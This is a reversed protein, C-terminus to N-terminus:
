NYIKIKGSPCAEQGFKFGDSLKLNKIAENFEATSVKTGNLYRYVKGASTKVWVAAGLNAYTSGTTSPILNVTRM